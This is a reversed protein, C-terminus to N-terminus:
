RSAGEVAREEVRMVLLVFFGVIPRDFVCRSPTKVNVLSSITWPNTAASRSAAPPECDRSPSTCAQDTPRRSCLIRHARLWFLKIKPLLMLRLTGLTM